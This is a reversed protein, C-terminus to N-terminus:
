EQIFFDHVGALYARGLGLLFLGLLLAVTAATARRGLRLALFLSAPVITLTIRGISSIFTWMGRGLFLAAGAHALVIWAWPGETRLGALGLGLCFLIFSRFLV